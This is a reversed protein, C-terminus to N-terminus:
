IPLLMSIAARPSQSRSPADEEVAHIQWVPVKCNVAARLEIETLEDFGDVEVEFLTTKEHDCSDLVIQYKM